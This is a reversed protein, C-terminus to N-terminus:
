RPNTIKEFPQRSGTSFPVNYEASSFVEADPNIPAGADAMIQNVYTDRSLDPPRYVSDVSNDEFSEFPEISNWESNGTTLKEFKTGPSFRQPLVSKVSNGEMRELSETGDESM